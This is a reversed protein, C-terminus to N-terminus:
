QHQKAQAALFHPLIRPREESPGDMLAPPAAWFSPRRKLLADLSQRAAAAEQVQLNLLTGDM